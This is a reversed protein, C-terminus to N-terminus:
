ISLQNNESEFIELPPLDALSKFGFARLFEETVTYLTPKGPADLKGCECIFNRESLTNLSSDSSVGRIKEIEARTIPQKNAIVSLTELAAQSLAQKQRPEFLKTIYEYHEARTCTQYGDDIERIQIGRNQGNLRDKLRLVVSHVTKKDVDLIEALTDLSVVKGSAFILAEIISEMSNIDM